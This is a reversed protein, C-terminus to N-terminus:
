RSSTINESSSSVISFNYGLPLLLTSISVHGQIFSICTCFCPLLLSRSVNLSSFLFWDHRSHVTTPPFIAFSSSLSPFIYWEKFPRYIKCLSQVKGKPHLTLCLCALILRILFLTSLPNFSLLLLSPSSTPSFLLLLLVIVKLLTMVLSFYTALFEFIGRTDESLEIWALIPTLEDFSSSLHVGPPVNSKMSRKSIALRASESHPM